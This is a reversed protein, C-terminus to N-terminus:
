SKLVNIYVGPEEKSYEFKVFIPLMEDANDDDIWGYKVMQDQITQAPNIYDFKHKSKRVFKFSIRYPKSKGKIMKIFEKKNDTWADKSEKYYRQTQKSVIFYRGTWRRGNKSSPVNGPIFIGRPM